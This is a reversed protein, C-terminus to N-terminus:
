KQTKYMALKSSLSIITKSKRKNIIYAIYNRQKMVIQLHPRSQKFYLTSLLDSYFHKNVYKLQHM